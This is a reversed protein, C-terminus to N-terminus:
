VLKKNVKEEIPLGHCDWGWVRRVRKGKMTYYRPIVDKAISPLLSGYHPNGSVFPPGDVFVFTNDAPREKVSREFTNNKKWFKLIDEELQPLTQKKLKKFKKM